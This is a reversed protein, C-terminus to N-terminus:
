KKRLLIQFNIIIILGNVIISIIYLYFGLNPGWKSSLSSVTEKSSISIDLPGEGIFSGIGVETLTSMGIFFILISIIMFIFSIFISVNFYKKKDRNYFFLGICIILYSIITLIPILGVYNIFQDPLYAFEGTIVNSTTVITILELPIIFMKTTTELSSSSGHIMWWPSFLSIIGITVIFIIVFYMKDKKFYSFFLSLMM